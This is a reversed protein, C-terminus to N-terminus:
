AAHRRSTFFGNITLRGRLPDSSLKEPASIDGSHLMAGNYFIMRNWRAEVSGTQTFYDNSRLMYGPELGYKQTFAESSLTSSDSFFRATEEVSRRPEYFSTGGLSTDKFLYLVCAQISQDARVDAADSHCIWQYPRLATPPLTVMSYRAHMSLLRRADFRRRMHELFFDSLAAFAPQPLLRYIGPFANFDVPRFTDREALAFQLLREPDLLADDVILCSGGNALSLVQIQPRPNFLPTTAM